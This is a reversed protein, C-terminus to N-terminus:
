TCLTVKRKDCKAKQAKGDRLNIWHIASYIRKSEDTTLKIPLLGALMCITDISVTRTNSVHRLATNWKVWVM